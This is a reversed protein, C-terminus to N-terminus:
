TDKASVQVEGILVEFGGPEAAVHREASIVNASIGAREQGICVFLFDKGDVGNVGTRVIGSPVVEQL